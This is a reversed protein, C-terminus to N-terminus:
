ISEFANRIHIESDNGDALIPFHAQVLDTSMSLAEQPSIMQGYSPNLMSLLFCLIVLKSSLLDKTKM